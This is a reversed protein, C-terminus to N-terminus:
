AKRIAKTIRGYLRSVLQKEYENFEFFFLIAAYILVTLAGNILFRLYVQSVPNFRNLLMGCALTILLGPMLKLYTHRFFEPMNLKLAKHHAAIMLINRVFYAVCIAASAGTAGYYKSLPVSLAISVAGTIIFIVAQLKVRNEVILTTNAIQLPLFFFSPLILLVACLYSEAFDPKRWIDTIFPKGLAIFGVTIIGIIMIQLRGVKIMLPMLETEKKGSVIIKSIRPMFMGNIATAFTYVYGEITGALGFLATGVSGTVSVAAIVTPTINFILRQMLTSVTTWVSFGFIDKLMNKDFFRFNSRLATGRKIVILKLAITCLGSVANATVLAEVGFGLLLAAVVTIIIFVKHFLDCAKLAVFKEYATLLGNLNMFPFQIVSYLAVIIYLRKLVETEDPTLQRYIAEIFFYAAILAIFIIADVALYLKYVLGMFDNAKQQEGRAVYLSVFRGVAASMGFDMIFLTILSSALTYLGYNGQGIKSIMWPTYVLGAIINFAITFYSMLAGIKIQRSSNM